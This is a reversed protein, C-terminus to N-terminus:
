FAFFLYLGLKCNAKKLKNEGCKEVSTFLLSTVNSLVILANDTINFENQSYFGMQKCNQAIMCHRSTM